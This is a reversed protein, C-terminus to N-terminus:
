ENIRRLIIKRAIGKGIQLDKGDCNLIRQSDKVTLRTNERLGIAALKRKLGPGAIINVIQYNGPAASSLQVLDEVSEVKVLKADFNRLTILKDKVLYTRPDGLPAEGVVRVISGPVFGIAILKNAIPHNIITSVKAYSGVPIEALTM